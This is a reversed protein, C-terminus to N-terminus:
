AAFTLTDVEITFVDADVDQESWADFAISAATPPGGRRAGHPTQALAGCGSGDSECLWIEQRGSRSSSFAIKGVTRALGAPERGDPEVRHLTGDGGWRARSPRAPLHEHRLAAPDPGPAVIPRGLLPVRPECGALAEAFTKTRCRTAARGSSPPSM